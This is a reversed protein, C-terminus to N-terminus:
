SVRDFVCHDAIPYCVADALDTWLGTLEGFAPLIMFHQTQAFCPLRLREHAMGSLAVGPHIHGALGYGKEHPEPEHLLVFPGVTLGPDFCDIRLDQLPEGARRDHNGRILWWDIQSISDRFEQLHQNTDDSIGTKHHFFDGLIVLREVHLRNLLQGLRQLNNLTDNGPIAFGNKRLTVGKGIHIDAIFLTKESPWYLAKEPLLHVTEGALSIILDKPSANM